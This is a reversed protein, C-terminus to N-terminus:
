KFGYFAAATDGLIQTRATEDEILTEFWDLTMAYTYGQDQFQTWPWDCGWLLREPGLKKMLVDALPKAAELGGCRYPASIKAWVKGNEAEKLVAQFSPDNVGLTQDPMSFHNIVMRAGSPAVHKFFAPVDPSKILAEIIWDRKALRKILDQYAPTGLEDVSMDFLSFRVGVAFNKEFADLAADDFGPDIMIIGHIRGKTEAICENMFTNDFGYTSPQVLVGNTMGFTDHYRLYDELPAEKSNHRRKPNMPYDHSVVHAHTDIRFM